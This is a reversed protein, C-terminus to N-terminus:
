ICNMSQNQDEEAEKEKRLEDYIIDVDYEPIHDKAIKVITSITDIDEEIEEAIVEVTKGKVLKKCVQEILLKEKGERRADKKIYRVEDFWKMYGKTVGEKDKVKTVVSDVESIDPNEENPKEGSVIYKLMESLRKRHDESKYLSKIQNLNNRGNCYFYYHRIGDDYEIGPHSILVSEAEYCMDGANFPDYSLITISVFEPLESYGAGSELLKVDHLAGYFRLRKPLDKKDERRNEMEVDYVTAILKGDNFDETIHVDFRLGHYKTDVGNLQKQSEIRIDKFDRYFVSKLINGIVIKADEENEIASDFLYGDILNMERIIKRAEDYTIKPVFDSNDVRKVNNSEREMINELDTCMSPIEQRIDSHYLM